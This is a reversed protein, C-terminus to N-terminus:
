LPLRTELVKEIRKVRRMLEMLIDEADSEPVRNRIFRLLRDSEKQFAQGVAREKLESMQNATIVVQEM